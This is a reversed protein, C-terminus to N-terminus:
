RDTYINKKQWFHGVFFRATGVPCYYSGPGKYWPRGLYLQVLISPQQRNNNFSIWNKTFINSTVNWLHGKTSVPLHNKRAFTLKRAVIGLVADRCKPCNLAMLRSRTLWTCLPPPDQRWDKRWWWTPSWYVPAGIAHNPIQIRVASDQDWFSMDKQSM